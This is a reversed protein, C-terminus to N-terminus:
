CISDPVERKKLRAKNGMPNLDNIRQDMLEPPINLLFSEERGEIM